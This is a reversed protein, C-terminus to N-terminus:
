EETPVGRFREPMVPKLGNGDWVQLRAWDQPNNQLLFKSEVSPKFVRYYWNIAESPMYPM